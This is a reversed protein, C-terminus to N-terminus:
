AKPRPRLAFIRNVDEDGGASFGFWDVDVRGRNTEGVFRVRVELTQSAKCGPLPLDPLKIWGSFPATRDWGGTVQALALQLSWKGSCAPSSAEVVVEAKAWYDGYTSGRTIVKGWAGLGYGAPLLDYSGDAPIPASWRLELVAPRLGDVFSDHSCAPGESDDPWGICNERVHGGFRRCPDGSPTFFQDAASSAFSLFHLDPGELMKDPRIYVRRQPHCAAAGTAVLVAAAWRATL